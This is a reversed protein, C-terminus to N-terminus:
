ATALERALAYNFFALRESKFVETRTLAKIKKKNILAEKKLYFVNRGDERTFYVHSIKKFIDHYYWSVTRKNESDTLIRINEKGLFFANGHDDYVLVDKGLDKVPIRRLNNAM